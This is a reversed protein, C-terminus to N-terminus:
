HARESQETSSRNDYTLDYKHSVNEKLVTLGKRSENCKCMEFCKCKENTRLKHYIKNGTKLCKLQRPSILDKEITWNCMCPPMGSCDRHNKKPGIPITQKNTPNFMNNKTKFLDGILQTEFPVTHKLWREMSQWHTEYLSIPRILHYFRCVDSPRIIDCKFGTKTRVFIHLSKLTRDPMSISRNFVSKEVGYLNRIAHTIIQLHNFDKINMKVLYSADLRILTKGNVQNKKFTNQYQPFGQKRIWDAVELVSWYFPYPLEIKDLVSACIEVLKDPSTRLRISVESSKIKQIGELQSNEDSKGYLFPM